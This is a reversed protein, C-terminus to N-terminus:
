LPLFGLPMSGSAPNYFNGLNPYLDLLSSAPVGFWLALEAFYQDASTTPIFVGGGVDLSGNLTLNPYQGLIKKGIVPGGLTLVNAGWAHDTGNGNSTLTRAFESITFTSVCDSTGLQTMASPFQHLANDVETYMAQQNNVLEDHHDWGGYDIFFIQRTMGLTSRYAIIKAAMEFSMSLYNDSFPTTFTPANDLAAQLEANGIRATKVKNKYTQFFIDQYTADVMNTIAQKRISNVLWDNNDDYIGLESSYPSISFEVTENGSQLLNTGSMSINMSINQNANTSQLMDSIRGAWGTAARAHPFGTQWHMAQDSHSYLGLPLAVDGDYFQQKTVPAVLAGTNAIFAAKGTNFYNQLHVLSPHIGFDKGPTNTPYIPLMSASSHALGGNSILGGRSNVYATYDNGTRPMLMNFSDNGGSKFLCVLAKYNGCDLVSSNLISSAAIAKLNMISNLFTTTGVAACSAHGIFQRRNIKNSM